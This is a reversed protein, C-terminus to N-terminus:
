AKERARKNKVPKTNAVWVGILIMSIGVYHLVYLNEGDILGWALAIVPIIYTVSSTFVPDTLKVLYNFVLLAIATGIVGLILIYSTALVTGEVTLLKQPYDTFGLLLIVALPGVFLLSISTIAIANVEKLYYKIVNLNVGYMITALVVYFAYYNIGGSSLDTGSLILTATGIFGMLMGAIIKGTFKQSFFIFGMLIVFLPTLANIVGTISSELHTQAIAFLFAPVFSGVLGIIFLLPLQSKSVKFLSRVAVPILFISASLIRIAGVEIASLVLLGKKILIFSSGWILSLIILLFWAFFGINRNM